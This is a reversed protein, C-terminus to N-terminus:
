LKAKLKSKMQADTYNSGLVFSGDNLADLLPKLTRVIDAAYATKEADLEDVTKDRVTWTRTYKTDSIAITPGEKVQDEGMEPDVVVLELWRLGKKATLTPPVGTKRFRSSDAEELVSDDSNNLLIYKKAM